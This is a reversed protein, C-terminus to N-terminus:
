WPVAAPLLCLRPASPPAPWVWIVAWDLAQSPVVVTHSHMEPAAAWQAVSAEQRTL